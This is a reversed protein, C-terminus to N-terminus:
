CGPYNPSSTAQYPENKFAAAASVLRVKSGNFTNTTVPLWGAIILPMAYFVQVYVYEGTGGPCFSTKTNDLPPIVIATQAKNLFANYGSAESYNQINVVIDNCSMSVPLMPCLIQTRFQAATLGQNQVAGVMIKRAAAITAQDLSGSVFVFYANQLIELMMALFPLIILGFEVATAASRGKIFSRLLRDSRGRLAQDKTPSFTLLRM